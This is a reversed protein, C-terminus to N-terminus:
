PATVPNRLAVTARLEVDPMWRRPNTSTGARRFLDGAPGRLEPSPAELRLRITIRQVRFPDIEDPLVEFDVVNDLLPQEAGNTTLRVLQSSGDPNARTGYTNVVISALVAGAAFAMPLPARLRVFDDGVADVSVRAASAGNFLLAFDGPVFGCAPRGRACRAVTDLLLTFDGAGAGARLLGQPGLHPVRVVRVAAGPRALEDSNVARLSSVREVLRAFPLEPDTVSSESGAERIDALVADLVTRGAPELQAVTETRELVAGLPAVLSAVAAGLIVVLACAVLLEILSFGRASM